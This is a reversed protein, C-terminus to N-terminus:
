VEGSYRICRILAGNERLTTSTMADEATDNVRFVKSHAKDKVADPDAITQGESPQSTWYYGSADVETYSPKNADRDMTLLGGWLLYRAIEFSSEYKIGGKGFLGFTMGEFVESSVVKYGYPCPDFITKEGSVHGWMNIYEDTGGASVLAALRLPNSIAEDLNASVAGEPRTTALVANGEGDYLYTWSLKSEINKTTVMIAKNQSSVGPQPIPMGWSYPLGYFYIFPQDTTSHGLRIPIQHPGYSGVPLSMCNHTGITEDGPDEDRSWITWSWAVKGNITLSMVGVTGAAADGDSPTTFYIYEYDGTLDPHITGDAKMNFGGLTPDSGPLGLAAVGHGGRGMVNAKFRYKQGPRVLFTNSPALDQAGAEDANGFHLDDFTNPRQSWVKKL